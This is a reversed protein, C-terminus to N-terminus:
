HMRSAFLSLPGSKLQLSNGSCSYEYQGSVPYTFTISTQTSNWTGSGIGGFNQGNISAGRKVNSVYTMDSKLVLTDSKPNFMLTGYVGGSTYIGDSFAWTGVLDTASAKKAFTASVIYDKDITIQVIAGQEGALDGGWSLFSFGSDPIATMTVITSAKYKYGTGFSIGQPTLTIAGNSPQPAISVTYYVAGPEETVATQSPGTSTNCMLNAAIIFTLVLTTNKM